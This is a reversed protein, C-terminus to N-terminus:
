TPNGRTDPLNQDKLYADYGMPKHEGCWYSKQTTRPEPYRCCTGPICGKPYVHGITSTSWFHCDRCSIM